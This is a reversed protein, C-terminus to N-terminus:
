FTRGFLRVPDGPTFELMGEFQMGIKELVKISPDNNPSTIAVIRKLDFTRRGHELVAAAAEHAYGRGWFEPFLAFGIDVDPLQDRKILGCMGIQAGSDKVDTRYLGFGHREYMGIPGERLYKRADDLNRVGKDGIFELWSPENVLRLIFPADDLTLRRLTLRETELVTVHAAEQCTNYSPRV